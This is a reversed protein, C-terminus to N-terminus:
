VSECVAGDGKVTEFLVGLLMGEAEVCLVGECVSVCGAGGSVVCFVSEHGGTAFVGVSGSVCDFVDVGRRV